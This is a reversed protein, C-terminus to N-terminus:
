HHHHHEHGNNQHSHKEEHHAIINSMDTEDLLPLKEQHFKELVEKLTIRDFGSHYIKIGGHKQIMNYPSQGM